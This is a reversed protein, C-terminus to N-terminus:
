RRSSPRSRRKDASSRIPEGTRVDIQFRKGIDKAISRGARAQQNLATENDLDDYDVLDLALAHAPDGEPLMSTADLLGRHGQKYLRLKGRLKNGQPAFTDGGLITDFYGWVDQLKLGLRERSRLDM